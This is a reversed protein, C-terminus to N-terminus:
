ILRWVSVAALNLFLLPIAWRLQGRVLAAESVGRAHLQAAAWRLGLDVVAIKAAFALLEVGVMAGHSLPPVPRASLGPVAWGGLFLASIVTAGLLRELRELAAHCADAEAPTPRAVVVAATAVFGLPQAVFGWAPAALGGLDIMRLQALMLDVPASSAPALGVLLAALALAYGFVRVFSQAIRAPSVGARVRVLALSAAVFSAAIVWWWVGPSAPVLTLAHGGLGVRCQTLEAAGVRASARGTCLGAGVPVSAAFLLAAAFAAAIKLRADFTAASASILRTLLPPGASPRPTWATAAVGIAALLTVALWAPPGAPQRDASGVFEIPVTLTHSDSRVQLQARGSRYVGPRERFSAPSVALRVVIATRAPIARPLSDDLFRLSSWDEGGIEFEGLPRATASVNHIEVAVETRDPDLRVVGPDAWLPESTDACGLLVLLPVLLPAARILARLWCAGGRAELVLLAHMRAAM